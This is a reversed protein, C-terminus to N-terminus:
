SVVIYNISATMAWGIFLLIWAIARRELAYCRWSCWAALLLVFPYLWLLLKSEGTSESLLAPFRFAPVATLLVLIMFWVPPRLDPSPQSM